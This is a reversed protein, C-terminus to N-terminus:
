VVRLAEAEARKRERKWRTIGEGVFRRVMESVSVIEGTREGETAAITDLENWVVPAFRISQRKQKSREVKMVEGETM